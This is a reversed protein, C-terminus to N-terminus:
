QNIQKSKLLIWIIIPIGMLSTVSNIPITLSSGPLQSIIDSVLLAIAGILASAWLLIKHNSTNFIIRSVHPVAIAIFAIPGCFATVSGALISTSSFVMLRTSKINLGMTTAYKEGLLLANLRKVSVFAILIGVFVMIAFMELQKPGLHGLSGFTWVVFTKLLTANSFFQLISVVSSIAAAILIGLVLIVMIDKVRASIYMILMLIGAAGVCAAIVISWNGIIDNLEFPVVRIFGLLLIAVGLSAGASIGLVDPGALPNRFITQMLLGSVSLAMGALIATIAKPLRYDLIIMNWEQQHSTKTFLIKVVESFPINVSGVFLDILFFFVLLFLLIGFLFPYSIKGGPM